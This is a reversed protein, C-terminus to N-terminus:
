TTVGGRAPSLGPGSHECRAALAKTQLVCCLRWVLMLVVLRLGAGGCALHSKRPLGEEDTRSNPQAWGSAVTCSTRPARYGSQGFTPAEAHRSLGQCDWMKRPNSTRCGVSDPQRDTKRDGAQGM